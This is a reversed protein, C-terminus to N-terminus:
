SFSADAVAAACSTNTVFESLWYRSQDVNSIPSTANPSWISKPSTSFCFPVFSTVIVPVFRITRETTSRSLSFPSTRQYM